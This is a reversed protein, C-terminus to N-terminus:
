IMTSATYSSPVPAGDDGNDGTIAQTLESMKGYDTLTPQHYSKPKSELNINLEKSMARIRM